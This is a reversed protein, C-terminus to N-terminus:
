QLVVSVKNTFIEDPFLSSIESINMEITDM